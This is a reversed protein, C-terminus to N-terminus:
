FKILTTISSYLFYMAFFIMIIAAAMILYEHWRRNWLGKSRFVTTAVFHNWGLDVALHTIIFMPLIILGYGIATTVLTAGVTAWWFVWYPNTITTVMGTTFSGQGDDREQVIAKRARFESVGMYMLIAGGILAIYAFVTQDKLVLDFGLFIAVILPVEIAAHGATVKIGARPDNYSKAITAAFLPGPMFAGSVTIVAVSALFVLASEEM